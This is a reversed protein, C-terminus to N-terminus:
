SFKHDVDMDPISLYFLILTYSGLSLEIKVIWIDFSYGKRIYETLHSSLPFLSHSIHPSGIDWPFIVLTDAVPVMCIAM